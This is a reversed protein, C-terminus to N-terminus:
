KGNKISNYIDLFCVIWIWEDWFSAKARFKAWLFDKSLYTYIDILKMFDNIDERFDKKNLLNSKIYKICNQKIKWYIFYNEEWDLKLWCKKFNYKKWIQEWKTKIKDKLVEVTDVWLNKMLLNKFEEESKWQKNLNTKISQIIFAQLKKEEVDPVFYNWKISYYMDFPKGISKEDINNNEFFDKLQKELNLAILKDQKVCTNSNLKIKRYLIEIDYDPLKNCDKKLRSYLLWLLIDYDVEKKKLFDVLLYYLRPEFYNFNPSCTVEEISKKWACFSNIFNDMMVLYWQYNQLINKEKKVQIDNAKNIKQGTENVSLKNINKNELSNNVSSEKGINTTHFVKKFDDEKKYGKLFVIIWVAVLILVIFFLSFKKM